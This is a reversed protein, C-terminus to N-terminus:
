ILHIPRRTAQGQRAALEDNVAEIERRIEATRQQYAVARSQATASTPGTLRDTLSAVLRARLEILEPETLHSYIGM